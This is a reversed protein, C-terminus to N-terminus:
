GCYDKTNLSGISLWYSKLIFDIGEVLLSIETEKNKASDPCSIVM